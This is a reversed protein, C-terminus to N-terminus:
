HKAVHNGWKMEYEFLKGLMIKDGYINIQFFFTYAYAYLIFFSPLM